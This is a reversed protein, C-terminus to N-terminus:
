HFLPPLYIRESDCRSILSKESRFEFVSFVKSHDRNTVFGIMGDCHPLRAEGLQTVISRALSQIFTVSKALNFRNVM